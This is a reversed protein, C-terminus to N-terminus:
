SALTKSSSNDLTLLQTKMDSVLSVPLFTLCLSVSFHSPLATSNYTNIVSDMINVKVKAYGAMKMKGDSTKKNKNKRKNTQAEQVNDHM